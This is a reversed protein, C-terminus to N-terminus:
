EIEREILYKRYNMLCKEIKEIGGIKELLRLSDDIEKLKKRYRFKKFFIKILSPTRHKKAPKFYKRLIEYKIHEAYDCDENNLNPLTRDACLNQCHRCEEVGFLEQMTCGACAAHFRIIM